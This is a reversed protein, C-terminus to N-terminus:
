EAAKIADWIKIYKAQNPGLDWITESKAKVAPPLFINPNNRVEPPLLPYAARNPCLYCTFEMNEAAVKPEHLFNIFAHALAVQKADKPIAMVDCAVSAGEVPVAFAVDANEGIVQMVDGSYGQVVTFEGSAIGSKYQENEFKALNHKWKIVLDRAAALQADDTSNMSYGLTKLGAGITERMDNLMTMRNKLDAREFVRWSPTFDPLKSKRWGLGTYSIMYPVSQTYATDKIFAHWEPDLNALNPLLRHDLPQLMGQQQMIDMMYASPYILDYGAAGAKLKAYMAENSDFTDVVVRCGHEKEFRQVLEPKIYDAWNYVHLVPKERHCGAALVGLTVISLLRPLSAIRMNQYKRRDAM